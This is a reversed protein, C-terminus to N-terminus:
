TKEFWKVLPDDVWPLYGIPRNSKLIILRKEDELKKFVEPAKKTLDSASVYEINMNIVETQKPASNKGRINCITSM